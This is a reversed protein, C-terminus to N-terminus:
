SSRSGSGVDLRRAPRQGPVVGREDRRGLSRDAATANRRTATENAGNTRKETYRLALQIAVATLGLLGAVAIVGLWWTGAVAAIVALAVVALVLLLFQLLLM